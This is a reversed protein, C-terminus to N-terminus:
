LRPTDEILDNKHDLQFGSRVSPGSYFGERAQRVKEPYQYGVQKYVWVGPEIQDQVYRSRHHQVVPYILIQREKSSSMIMDTLCYEGDIDPHNYYNQWEWKTAISGCSRRCNMWHTMADRRMCLICPKVDNPLIGTTEFLLKEEPMLCEVGPTKVKGYMSIWECSGANVCPREGTNPKPTRMMKDEYSRTLGTLNNLNVGIDELSEPQNGTSLNMNKPLKEKILDYNNAVPGYINTFTRLQVYYSYTLEPPDLKSPKNGSVPGSQSQELESYFDQLPLPLKCVEDVSKEEIQNGIAKASKEGEQESIKQLCETKLTRIATDANDLFEDFCSFIDEAEADNTPEQKVSVLQPQQQVRAGSYETQNYPTSTNFTKFKNLKKRVNNNIKKVLQKKELDNDSNSEEGEMQEQDLHKKKLKTELEKKIEVIKVEEVGAPSGFKVKKKPPTKPLGELPNLLKPMTKPMTKLTPKQPPDKRKKNTSKSAEEMKKKRKKAERKEWTIFTKPNLVRPAYLLIFFLGKLKKKNPKKLFRALNLSM